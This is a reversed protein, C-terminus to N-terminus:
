TRWQKRALPRHLSIRQLQHCSQIDLYRVQDAPRCPRQLESGPEPDPGNREQVGLRPIPVLQRVAGRDQM